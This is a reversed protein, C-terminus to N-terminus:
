EGWHAVIAGDPMSLSLFMKRFMPMAVSTTGLSKLVFDNVMLHASRLALELSTNTSSYLHIYGEENPILLCHKDVFHDYIILTYNHLSLIGFKYATAALVKESECLLSFYINKPQWLTLAQPEINNSQSVIITGLYM